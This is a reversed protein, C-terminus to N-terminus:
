LEKSAQLMDDKMANLIFGWFAIARTAIKLQERKIELNDGDNGTQSYSPKMLLMKDLDALIFGDSSESSEEEESEVGSPLLGELISRNREITGQFIESAEEFAGLLDKAHDTDFAQLASQTITKSLQEEVGKMFGESIRVEQLFAVSEEYKPFERIQTNFGCDKCSVFGMDDEKVNTSHCMLCHEEDMVQRLRRQRLVLYVGGVILGFLLLYLPWNNLLLYKAHVWHSKFSGYRGWWNRPRGVIYTWGLAMGIMAIPACVLAIVLGLAEGKLMGLASQGVEGWSHQTQESAKSEVKFGTFLGIVVFGVMFGFVHAMWAVGGIKGAFKWARFVDWALWYVLLLYAPIRLTWIRVIIFFFGRIRTHPFKLLYAGMYGAVLGSAGIMPINMTKKFMAYLLGTVAGVILSFIVFKPRGLRDEIKCGFVYLFLSNGILHLWGAHLFVHSFLTLYETYPAGTQFLEAPVMGYTRYFTILAYVDRHFFSSGLQIVFMLLILCYTVYPHRHLPAESHLPLIM